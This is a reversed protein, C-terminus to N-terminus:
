WSTAGITVRSYRVRRERWVGGKDRAKGRRAWGRRARGRRAQGPWVENSGQRAGGSGALGRGAWGSGAASRFRKRIRPVLM